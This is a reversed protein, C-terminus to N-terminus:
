SSKDSTSITMNEYKVIEVTYYKKKRIYNYFNYYWM